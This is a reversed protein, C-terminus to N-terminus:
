LVLALSFNDGLDHLADSIIAISNTFIGGVIEIISFGLNLFFAVKINSSGSHNHEHGHNDERQHPM